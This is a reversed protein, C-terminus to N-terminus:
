ELWCRLLPLILDGVFVVRIEPFLIFYKKKRINSYKGVQVTM